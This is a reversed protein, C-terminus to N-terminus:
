EREGTDGVIRRQGGGVGRTGKEGVERGVEGQERSAVSKEGRLQRLDFHLHM